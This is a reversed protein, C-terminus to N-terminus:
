ANLWEVYPPMRPVSAMRLHVVPEDQPYFLQARRHFTAFASKLQQDTMQLFIAKDDDSIDVRARVHPEM